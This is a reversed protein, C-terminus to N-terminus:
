RIYGNMQDLFADGVSEDVQSLTCSSIIHIIIDDDDIHM